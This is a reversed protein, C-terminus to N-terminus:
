RHQYYADICLTVLRGLLRRQERRDALAAVEPMDQWLRKVALLMQEGYLRQEHAERALEGLAACVSREATASRPSRVYAAVAVHLRARTGPSPFPADGAQPLHVSAMLSLAGPTAGSAPALRLELAGPRRAARGDAQM